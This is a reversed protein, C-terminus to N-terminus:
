LGKLEARTTPWLQKLDPSRPGPSREVLVGPCPGPGWKLILVMPAESHNKRPLSDLLVLESVGIFPPLLPHCLRAQASVLDSGPLWPAEETKFLADTWDQPERATEIREAKYSCPVDSPRSANALCWSAWGGVRCLPSHSSSNEM